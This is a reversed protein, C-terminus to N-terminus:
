YDYDYIYDDSHVDDGYVIGLVVLSGLGVIGLTTYIANNNAPQEVFFFDGREIMDQPMNGPNLGTKLLTSLYFDQEFVMPREPSSYITLYSKFKLPTDSLTFDARKAKRLMNNKDAMKAKKYISNDLHRFNPELSLPIESIMSNPPIFTTRDSMVQITGDFIGGGYTHSITGDSNYSIGRTRANGTFPVSEGAYSFAMSDIIMASQKWDVYLPKDSKNFVTIQMPADAGKFCYAIWLTDTELLFDGNEVKDVYENATSLTSYYFTSSCSSLLLALLIYAVPKM